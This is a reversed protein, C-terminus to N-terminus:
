LAEIKGSRLAMKAAEQESEKKSRGEGIGIVAANIKVATRFLKRHDPGKEELLEYKIRNDKKMQVIEQLHTKYDDVILGREVLDIKEAMLDFIIPRVVEFGGDLYLAAILAEFADALISRRTRGGTLAEGKGFLMYEGLEIESAVEALTAECVIKSRTKTLEGEKFDPNKKYVYESIIVGLVSDGLFELRENYEAKRDRLENAYSSHTLALRLHDPNKFQYGLLNELENLKKM